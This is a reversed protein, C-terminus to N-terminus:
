HNHIFGYWLLPMGFLLLFAVVFFGILIIPHIGHGQSHWHSAGLTTGRNHLVYGGSPYGIQGSVHKAQSHARTRLFVILTAIVLVILICVLVLIAILLGQNTDDEKCKPTPETSTVPEEPPPPPVAVAQSIKQVCNNFVYNAVLAGAERGQINDAQFHIGGYIRSLGAEEAATSLQTFQRLISGQSVVFTPQEDSEFFLALITAAASSFTSHGSIYGPFPPAALLSTWTPDLESTRIATVPRWGNFARKVNWATIAADAATVAMLAFLRSEEVLELEHAASLQQAIQFWMGSPTVTGPGAEWLRAIDTQEQTRLTSGAAGIMRVEEVELNYADTPPTPPDAIEIAVADSTELVWPQVEGWGPLLYPKFAPPTPRWDFDELPNPAVYGSGATAAGDNLRYLIVAQAAAMGLASSQDRAISNYPELSVELEASFDTNPYFYKLITHGAQAASPEPLAEAEPELAEASDKLYSQCQKTISNIAEFQAIHLMALQRTANPPNVSNSAIRALLLKNWKVIESDAALAITIIVFVLWM